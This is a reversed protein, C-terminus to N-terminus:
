ATLTYGVCRGVGEGGLNSIASLLAGGEASAKRGCFELGVKVIRHPDGEADSDEDQQDDRKGGQEAQGDPDTVVLVHVVAQRM